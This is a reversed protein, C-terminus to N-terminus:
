PSHIAPEQFKVPRRSALTSNVTAGTGRRKLSGTTHDIGCWYLKGFGFAASRAFRSAVHTCTRHIVSRTASHVSFAPCTEALRLDCLSGRMVPSGTRLVKSAWAGFQCIACAVGFHTAASFRVRGM